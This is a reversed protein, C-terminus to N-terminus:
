LVQGDEAFIDGVAAAPDGRRSQWLGRMSQQNGDEVDNTMDM